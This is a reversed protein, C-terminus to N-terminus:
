RTDERKTQVQIDKEGRRNNRSNVFLALGFILPAGLGMTSYLIAEEVDPESPKFMAVKNGFSAIIMTGDPSTRIEGKTGASDFHPYNYRHILSLDVSNLIILEGGFGEGVRRMANLLIKDPTPWDLSIFWNIDDIQIKRKLEGSEVDLININGSDFAWHREVTAIESGDPSWALETIPTTTNLKVISHMTHNQTVNDILPLTDSVLVTGGSTATAIKSGDPSWFIKNSVYDLSSNINYDTYLNKNLAYLNILSITEMTSTNVIEIPGGITSWNNGWISGYPIEVHTPFALRDGSPSFAIDTVPTWDSYHVFEWEMDTLNYVMVAGYENSVVFIDEDIPSWSSATFQTIYSGKPNGEPITLNHEFESKEGTSSNFLYIPGGSFGSTVAVKDSSPSWAIDLISDSTNHTDNWWILEYGNEDVSVASVVGFISIIVIIAVVIGAATRKMNKGGKENEMKMAERERKIDWM